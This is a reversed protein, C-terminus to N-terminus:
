LKSDPQLCIFYPVPGSVRRPPRVPAGTTPPRHRSAAPSSAPRLSSGLHRAQTPCHQPSPSLWCVHGTQAHGAGGM